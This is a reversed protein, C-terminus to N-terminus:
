KPEPHILALIQNFQFENALAALASALADNRDRIQEIHILILELDCEITAKELAALWDAPLAALSEPTPAEIQTLEPVSEPEGYIYRVGLHKHLTAFIETDRFPKHIFDDCDDSVTVTPAEEGNSASVAIIATAQGKVTAKIRKTAEHGDMVPMWMDMFILHPEFSSWMEIAEMGNSAEELEFDFVALLKILLQRNDLQDDVILIRYRPQNRELAIVRRPPQVPQTAPADVASIPIDFAFTTGRGVESRVTILGGMLKIFQQSIALGLGTGQQSKTGTKTQVFAQFLQDLEDAAIGSGTDEIEFHLQYNSIPLQQNERDIFASVRLRIVGYKTFKIANSLLNILVQRLKMQDTQVYEPTESSCDFILQLQQERAQLQFMEELDNLLSSLKFDTPNITIRGAEIKALDLIQNILALLHEGSRNIIRINEQQERTLNTSRQMLQSFGLIANLPTRLEHSMNALFTSKALNAAEAAWAAQQLQVAQQQTAELLQAQQLAVGLQTSIQLGINIEAERWTRPVSNQYSALLGWLQSGCFIPFIVYARAQFQKLLELYCPSLGASYIDEIIRYPVGRAYMGGQNRQLYTDLVPEGSAQMTKVTCRSDEVLTNPVNGDDPQMLSIWGAAMSEAVFQGSWDPNFRYIGVRDCKLTQRLESTTTKFITDIDLSQRIRDISRAIAQEGQASERLASEAQKRDSIDLVTGFLRILQGKEDYVPKGRVEIYSLSGDRRILRLDIEFSQGKMAQDRVMTLYRSRDEPHFREILQETPLPKQTPDIEYIRYLEQSWTTTATAIDHEWSGIRAIKQAELLRSEALQRDSIDRAVWVASSDSLPSIKAAFWVEQNNILLSYDFSITQKTELAQQVQAFYIEQSEEHFFHEIISDIQNTQYNYHFIGKTPIIQITKQEYEFILVIDTISDFIKVIQETSTYLKQELLKRDAIEYQLLENARALACTREVVETELTRNYDTLIKEAQKRQAINYFANIAYIINGGEDFIPTARVEFPIFKGDRHLEVDELFVTEGRLARFAPLEETPYLQNQRYIQYVEVAEELTSDPITEVGLWHKATENFYVVKGSADHISVGGPIAEIFQQLQSQRHTLAENLSKQDAFAQQLQAAMFNFSNALDGVEDWRKIELPQDWKGTAVNKAATNLRMIPKTVWRSTLFGIAIALPLTGILLWLTHRTNAQIPAMFDSEPVVVVILWDLGRFDRYPTVRVFQRDGKNALTFRQTTQLARFNGFRNALQRAIDRTRADKSNTALLPTSQKTTPTVLPTELTSTAILNGSRDMIFTQGSASFQLRPLFTNIASLGNNDTLRDSIREGVQEILQHAVDEVSEQSSKFSLYGVLGVVSVTQLVLPVILVTRLPLKSFFKATLRNLPYIPM